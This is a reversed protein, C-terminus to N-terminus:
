RRPELPAQLQIPLQRNFLGRHSHIVSQEAAFLAQLSPLPLQACVGHWAFIVAMACAAEVLLKRPCHSAGHPHSTLASGFGGTRFVCMAGLCLGLPVGQMGYLLVLLVLNQFEAM